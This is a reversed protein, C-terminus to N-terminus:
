HCGERLVRELSMDFNWSDRPDCYYVGRETAVAAIRGRCANNPENGKPEQCRVEMNCGVYNCNFGSSVQCRILRQSVAQRCATATGGASVPAQDKPPQPKPPFPDVGGLLQYFSSDAQGAVHRKTIFKETYKGGIDAQTHMPSRDVVGPAYARYALDRGSWTLEYTVLFNSMWIDFYRFGVWVDVPRTVGQCFKELLPILASSLKNLVLDNPKLGTMPVVPEDLKETKVLVAFSMHLGGAGTVAPKCDRGGPAAPLATSWIEWDDFAAIREPALKGGGGSVPALPPSYKTLENFKSETVQKAMAPHLVLALSFVLLHLVSM